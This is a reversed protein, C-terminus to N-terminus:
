QLRTELNNEKVASMDKGVLHMRQYDGLLLDAGSVVEACCPREKGYYSSELGDKWAQSRPAATHSSESDWFNSM